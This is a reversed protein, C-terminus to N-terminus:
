WPSFFCASGHLGTLMDIAQRFKRDLVDDLKRIEKTLREWVVCSPCAHEENRTGREEIRPLPMHWAPLM